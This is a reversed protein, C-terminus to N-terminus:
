TAEVEIRAQRRRSPPKSAGVVPLELWASDPVQLSDPHILLEQGTRANIASYQLSFPQQQQHQYLSGIEPVNDYTMLWKFNRPAALYAALLRHEESSFRNMYLEPGKAFYPPDLYIFVNRSQRHKRNLNKLLDLGDLMSVTIREGYAGIRRIRTTLESKNFRADIGYNGTQDFGGIPGGNHIIGSRTTRNLFFTAFGLKTPSRLDAAEYIERQRHWEEVSVDVGSLMETMADNFKTVAIWFAYVRPDADNITIADVYEECLLRLAAGGGGAYPEVYHGGTLGNAEIVAALFGTLKAKGGPYRLPSYFTPM